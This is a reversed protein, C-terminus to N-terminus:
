ELQSILNLYIIYNFELLHLRLMVIKGWLFVRMDDTEQYSPKKRTYAKQSEIQRTVPNLSDWTKRQDKDRQRKAKKSLKNKPIFKEM